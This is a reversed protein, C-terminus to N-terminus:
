PCPAVAYLHGEDTTVYVRGRALAPTTRIGGSLRVSALVVPIPTERKGMLTCLSLGFFSIDWGPYECHRATSLVVTTDAIAWLQGSADGVYAIGRTVSPAGVSAGFQMWWRVRQSSGACSNLAYLRSAGAEPYSPLDLGGTVVIVVDNWLAAPRLTYEYGYQTNTFPIAAEPFTWRRIAQGIQPGTAVDIAHTYGDKLRAVAMTHCTALQVAPTSAWDDDGDFQWPVPHFEWLPTGTAGDLRLMSPAHNPIPEVKCNPSTLGYYCSNGTTIALDGGPISAPSSWVGGGRPMAAIFPTFSTVRQGTQLDIAVLQGQVVPMDGHSAMGIYVKGNVVLPSSYGIQENHDWRALVPSRWIRAGTTANLAYLRDGVTGTSASDDPGGFIVTTQGQVGEVVTASSAIGPFSPNFQSNPFPQSMLPPQGPAPYEWLMKGSDGDDRVAYMHGNLHGAYVVGKYVAPSASYGGGGGSPPSVVNPDANPTHYQPSWRWAVALHKVKSPDSLRSKFPQSGTRLPDHQYTPWEDSGCGCILVCGLSLWTLFRSLSIV